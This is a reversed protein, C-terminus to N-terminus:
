PSSFTNIIKKMKPIITAGKNRLWDHSTIYSEGRRIDIKQFYYNLLAVSEHTFESGRKNTTVVAQQFRELTTDFVRDIVDNTDSCMFVELPESASINLLHAM